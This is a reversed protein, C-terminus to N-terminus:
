WVYRFHVNKGDTVDKFDTDEHVREGRSADVKDRRCNEWYCYGSYMMITIIALVYSGLIAGM